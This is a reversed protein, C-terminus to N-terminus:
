HGQITRADNDRQSFFRGYFAVLANGVEGKQEPTLEAEKTPEAREIMALSELLAKMTALARAKDELFAFVEAASPWFKWTRMAERRTEVTLVAAPLDCVVEAIVKIRGPLDDQPPPNSVAHPIPGFWMALRDRTIATRMATEFYPILRNAEDRFEDERGAPVCIWPPRALPLVDRLLARSATLADLPILEAM